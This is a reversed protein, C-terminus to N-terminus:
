IVHIYSRNLKLDRVRAQPIKFLEGIATLTM